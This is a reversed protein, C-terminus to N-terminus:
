CPKRSSNNQRDDRKWQNLHFGVPEPGDVVWVPAGTADVLGTDITVRESEHVTVSGAGSQEYWETDDEVIIRPAHSTYRRM